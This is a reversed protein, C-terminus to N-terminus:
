EPYRLGSRISELFAETSSRCRDRCVSLMFENILKGPNEGRGECVRNFLKWVAPDVDGREFSMKFKKPKEKAM